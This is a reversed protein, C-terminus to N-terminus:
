FLAIFPSSEKSNALTIKLSDFRNQSINAGSVGRLWKYLQPDVVIYPLVHVAEFQLVGM